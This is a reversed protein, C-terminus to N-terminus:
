TKKEKRGQGRVKRKVTEPWGEKEKRKIWSHSRPFEVKGQPDPRFGIALYM